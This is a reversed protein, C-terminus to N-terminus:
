AAEVMDVLEGERFWPAGPPPMKGEPMFFAAARCRCNVWEEIPGDTDGPHILGNPFPDGVRVITGDIDLHSERTRDDHASIWEHYEVGLELQTHYTGLNQASIIETRAVRVLEHAEMDSFVERLRRAAEDVGVGDEYSQTLSATVDGTVRALTRQSAEFAKDRLLNRTHEPFRDFSVGSVDARGPHSVVADRAHQAAAVLASDIAEGVSGSADSVLQLLMSLALVDSPVRESAALQEIVLGAVGRLLASLDASLRAELDRQWAPTAKIAAIEELLIEAEFALLLAQSSTLNDLSPFVTRM